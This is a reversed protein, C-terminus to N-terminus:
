PKLGGILADAAQSAYGVSARTDLGFYVTAVALLLMPLLMSLPPDRAERLAASPERFYAVEIIRGVYVVALVSSMLILFVLLWLEAALAGQALYWKSVFGATGPVGVLGPGGIVFAAMTLPMKRGLGAMEEIRPGRGLKYAIAGLAMFLSAKMVAHNFIHILSGTLGAKNALSLGLTIYGVQAVWSYALMRKINNEYIAITSAVFMAVVSLGLLVENVVVTRFEFAVGFVSFYFRMLVYVAVKTATAALFATAFSPAYAYANPLWIHLPFLALKLCIGVTIFGLAAYAARMQEPPVSGLRNALDVMNLTGTLLYLLGVGIIYLTAGITGMILYQYAALLAKRNRGMAILTYTALSSIELFVFVNFADGTAAIGLLGGLCLLYMAYFWSQKDQDIETGVSRRAYPAMVAAIGSVLLMVFANLMDIRYEIGIPPLWNGLPYSITGEAMVRQILLLSIVPMAWCIALSVLWASPGRRLFAVILAGFLPVMVQLIPLHHVLAKM